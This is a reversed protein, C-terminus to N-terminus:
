KKEKQVFSVAGDRELRALHVKNRDLVGQLRLEEELDDDAIQHRDMTERNIRGDEM